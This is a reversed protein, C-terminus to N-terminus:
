SWRPGWVRPPSCRWLSGDFELSGRHLVLTLTFETAVDTPDTPVWTQLVDGERDLAAALSCITQHEFIRRARMPLGLERARSAVTIAMISDGGLEFFGDRVGVQSLGLVESWVRQLTRQTATTAKASGQVSRRPVPLARRDLKGHVTLPWQQVPIIQSPVMYEPLHASLAERLTQARLGRQRATSPRNCLATSREVCVTMFPRVDIPPLPGDGELRRSIGTWVDM